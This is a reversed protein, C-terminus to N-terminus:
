SSSILKSKALILLFKHLATNDDYPNIRRSIAASLQAGDFNYNLKPDKLNIRLFIFKKLNIGIM